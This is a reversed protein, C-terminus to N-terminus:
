AATQVKGKFIYKNIRMKVERDKLLTIWYFIFVFVDVVKNFAKSFNFYGKSKLRFMM